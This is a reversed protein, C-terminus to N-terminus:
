IAACRASTTFCHQCMPDRRMDAIVNGMSDDTIRARRLWDVTWNTESM